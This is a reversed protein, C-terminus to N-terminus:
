KNARLFDKFQSLLEAETPVTLLAAVNATNGRGASSSSSGKSSQSAPVPAPQPAITPVSIQHLFVECLWTCLMTRQSKAGLPLTKLVESLYVRLPTLEAGGTLIFGRLDESRSSLSGNGGSAASPVPGSGNAGDSGAAEDVCNILRLVVDDFSLGSKAFCVAAKEPRGSSMSFEAQARM